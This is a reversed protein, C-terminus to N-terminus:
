SIGLHGIVIELTLSTIGSRRQLIHFGFVVLGNLSTDHHVFLDFGAFLFSFVLSDVGLSEAFLESLELDLCLQHLILNLLLLQAM